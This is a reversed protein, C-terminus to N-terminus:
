KSFVVDFESSHRYIQGRVVRASGVVIDQIVVRHGDFGEKYAYLLVQM